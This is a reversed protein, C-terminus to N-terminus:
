QRLDWDLVLVLPEVLLLLVVLAEMQVRLRVVALVEM